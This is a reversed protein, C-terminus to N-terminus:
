SYRSLDLPQQYDVRDGGVDVLANSYNEWLKFIEVNDRAYKKTMHFGLPGFKTFHYFKLPVSNVLIVGAEDKEFFREFLNWNAVNCGFDKSIKVGDFFIPIHNCWKQDTFYGEEIKDYCCFELRDAWWAACRKGEASGKFGIFGLNYLGYKLANVETEVVAEIHNLGDDVPTIVHPTLLVNHNKLDSALSDLNSFVEIDPDFYFVCDPEQELLYCAAAGKIATCMEVVSYKKLMEQYHEFGLDASFVVKDFYKEAIALRPDTKEDTVVAVVVWSPNFKKLSRALVSAKFVYDFNFSTFAIIKNM